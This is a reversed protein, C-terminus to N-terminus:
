GPSQRELHRLRFHRGVYIMAQEVTMGSGRLREYESIFAGSNLDGELLRIAEEDTEPAPRDEESRIRPNYWHM